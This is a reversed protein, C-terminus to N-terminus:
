IAWKTYVLIINMTTVELTNYVLSHVNKTKIPPTSLYGDGCM